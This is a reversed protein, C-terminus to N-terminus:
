TSSFSELNVGRSDVVLEDPSSEAESFCSRCFLTAFNNENNSSTFSFIGLINGVTAFRQLLTLHPKQIHPQLVM